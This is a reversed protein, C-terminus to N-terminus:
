IIKVPSIGSHSYTFLRKPLIARFLKAAEKPTLSSQDAANDRAAITSTSKIM